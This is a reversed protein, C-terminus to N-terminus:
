KQRGMKKRYLPDTQIRKKRAIRYFTSKSLNLKSMIWKPHKDLEIYTLVQQQIQPATFKGKTM